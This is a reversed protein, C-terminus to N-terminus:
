EHRHGQNWALTLLFASDEMAEVDHPVEAALALLHGIPLDFERGQVHMRIHGSVTQVSISGAARHEVIKTNARLVTLVLRLDPHKVVTKSNRGSVYADERRLTEIQEKLSFELFPGALPEPARQPGPQAANALENALQEFKEHVGPGVESEVSEFQAALAEHDAPSLVKNALPLLLYDEKWIHDPYLEVLSRLSQILSDRAAGRSDAYLGSADALQQVLVRGKEHENKLAGLPCGGAPVGKQELLPFLYKDEKAHHCQDVFVRFFQVIEKLLEPKVLRGDALDSTLMAMGAVVKQVIRHEHELIVTSSEM